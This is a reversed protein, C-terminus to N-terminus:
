KKYCIYMEVNSHNIIIKNYKTCYLCALICKKFRKKRMSWLADSNKPNETCPGNSRYPGNEMRFMRYYVQTVM